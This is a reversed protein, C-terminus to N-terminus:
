SDAEPALESPTEVRKSEAPIIVKTPTSRRGFLVSWRLSRTMWRMSVLIKQRKRLRSRHTKQWRYTREDFLEIAKMIGDDHLKLDIEVAFEAICQGFLEEQGENM